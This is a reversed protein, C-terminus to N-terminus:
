RRRGGRGAFGGAGGGLSRGSRASSGQRSAWGRESAQREFSGSGYGGSFPTSNRGSGGRGERGAGRTESFGRAERGGEAGVQRSRASSEGSASRRQGSQGYRQATGKDRYAVGKRHEPDHKWTSRGNQGTVGRAKLQEKYQERNINKNINYNHNVDVEVSDNHWNCSGWAYGWAMGVAVGTAFTVGPAPPPPYYYYPPYAPYPWAGYVVTTSYTPVYVVEPTSPRIVITEKEVVVQQEKTSKLNGTDHAQKRLAQVVDMVEKQQSLFADGLKATLDLKESLRALVSPFNVLSKVSPDWSEQELAKALPDGKLDAHQRAWRDAQVIELPYTSAMLIQALLEDPYLAIPAVLQALEEKSLKGQQQAKASGDDAAAAFPETMILALLSLVVALIYKGRM